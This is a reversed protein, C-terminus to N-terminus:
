RVAVAKSSTSQKEIALLSGRQGDWESEKVMFSFIRHNLLTFVHFLQSEFLVDRDPWYDCWFFLITQCSLMLVSELNFTANIQRLRDILRKSLIVIESVLWDDQIPAGLIQRCQIRALHTLQEKESRTRWLVEVMEEVSPPSRQLMTLTFVSHSLIQDMTYREAPDWVLVHKILDTMRAWENPTFHLRCKSNTIPARSQFLDRRHDEDVYKNIFSIPPDGLIRLLALWASRDEQAGAVDQMYICQYICDLMMMGFAWIDSERTSDRALVCEPARWWLTGFAFTTGRNEFSTITFDTLFVQYDATVLVNAPKLDGHVISRQHMYQLGRGIQSFIHVLDQFCTMEKQVIADMLSFRARPMRHIVKKIASHAMVIQSQDPQIVRNHQMSHFFATEKLTLRLLTIRDPSRTCGVRTIKYALNDKQYVISYFGRGIEQSNEENVGRHLLRFTSPHKSEWEDDNLAQALHFARVVGNEELRHWSRFSHSLYGISQKLDNTDM